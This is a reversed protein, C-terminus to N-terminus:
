LQTLAFISHRSLSPKINVNLTKCVYRIVHKRSLLTPRVTVHACVYEIKEVKSIGESADM